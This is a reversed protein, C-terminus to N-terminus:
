FVPWSGGGGTTRALQSQEITMGEKSAIQQFGGM